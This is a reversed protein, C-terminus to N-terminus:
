TAVTTLPEASPRVMEGPNVLAWSSVLAAPSFANENRHSEHYLFSSSSHRAALLSSINLPPVASLNQSRMCFTASSTLFSEEMLFSLRQTQLSRMRRPLYGKM